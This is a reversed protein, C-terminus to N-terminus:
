KRKAISNSFRYSDGNMEIINSYHTIRDLLAATLKDSKLAQIWDSFELNSIMILSSVEYQQNIIDYMLEAGTASLSVYGIEDIILLKQKSLKNHLKSLSLEDRAEM